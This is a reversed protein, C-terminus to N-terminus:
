NTQTKTIHKSDESWYGENIDEQTENIANAIALQNAQNIADALTLVPSAPTPARPQFPLQEQTARIFSDEQVQNFEIPSTFGVAISPVQSV